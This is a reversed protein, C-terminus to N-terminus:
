PAGKKEILVGQLAALRKDLTDLTFARLLTEALTATLRAKEGTPLEAGDVQRLRRALLEALGGPDLAATDEARRAGHLVDAEALGRFSHELVAVAARVRDSDKKGDKAVSLLTDVAQGAAAQMRGIAREVLRRRVARYRRQFAPERLWRKLTRASVGALAAADALTAETLLAALALERRDTRRGGPM